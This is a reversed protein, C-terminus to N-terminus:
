HVLGFWEGSERIDCCAIWLVRHALTLDDTDNLGTDYEDTERPWAGFEALYRIALDRPVRFNLKKCWFAVAHDVAGQASCDRVCARTFRPGIYQGFKDFLRRERPM